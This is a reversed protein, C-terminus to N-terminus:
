CFAVEFIGTVPLLQSDLKAKWSIIEDIFDPKQLNSTRRDPTIHSGHYNRLFNSALRYIVLVKDEVDYNYKLRSLAARFKTQLRVGTCAKWVISAELPDHPVNSGKEQGNVPMRSLDTHRAVRM